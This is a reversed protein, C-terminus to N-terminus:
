SQSIQLCAVSAKIVNISEAHYKITECSFILTAESIPSLYLRRTYVSNVMELVDSTGACPRIRGHEAALFWYPIILYAFQMQIM